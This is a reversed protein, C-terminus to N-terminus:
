RLPSIQWKAEKSKMLDSVLFWVLVVHHVTGKLHNKLAQRFVPKISKKTQHPKIATIVKFGAIQEIFGAFLRLHRQEAASRHSVLPVKRQEVKAIAGRGTIGTQKRRVTIVGGGIAGCEPHNRGQQANNTCLLGHEGDVIQKLAISRGHQVTNIALSQAM